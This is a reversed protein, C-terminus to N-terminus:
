PPLEPTSDRLMDLDLSTRLAGLQTKAVDDLREMQKNYQDFIAGREGEGVARVAVIGDGHEDVFTGSRAGDLIPSTLVAVQAVNSAYTTGDIALVAQVAIPAGDDAGGALRAIVEAIVASGPEAASVPVVTEGGPELGDGLLFSVTGPGIAGGSLNPVEFRLRILDGPRGSPPEACLAHLVNKYVAM